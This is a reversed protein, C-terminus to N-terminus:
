AVERRCSIGFASGIATVVLRFKDSRWGNAQGSDDAWVSLTTIRVASVQYLKGKTFQAGYPYDELCEVWCGVEITDPVVALPMELQADTKVYPSARNPKAAPVADADSDDDEQPEDGKAYLKGDVEVGNDSFYDKSWSTGDELTVMDDHAYCERNGECISGNDEFYDRSWMTGDALEIMLDNHYLSGNGECETADNEIAYQGWCQVGRRGNRREIIVEQMGGRPCSEETHECYGFAENYCHECYSNGDDDSQCNDDDVGDGCDTCRISSGSLGNQNGGNVGSGGLILHKGDDRASQSGDIYPCVFGSGEEIRLMRAGDLDGSVYSASELLDGLRCEDGYIRGYLKKDPWVLARATINGDREIYAIALDGAAYITCPHVSSEFHSAPYQMCSHPGNVYVREIEESTHAFQLLISDGYQVSFEAAMRAITPADFVHGYFQALYKGPKVRTQIDGAGKNADQTYAIKAGDETSVHAFHDATLSHTPLEAWPLPIYTGDAFRGLERAKWADSSLRRPQCKVEDYYLDYCLGQGALRAVTAADTGNDYVLPKGERNLVPVPESGAEIIFLGFM